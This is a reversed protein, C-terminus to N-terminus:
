ATPVRRPAVRLEPGSPSRNKSGVWIFTPMVPTALRWVVSPVSTLPGRVMDGGAFRQPEALVSYTYEWVDLGRCMRRLGSRTKFREYYSDARGTARIYRDAAPRPLWSLFPLRYHPEMVGFRNGLGLYVVGGPALVRRIEAMIADPDVTHEYVHNYVVLDVSGTPFPLTVGSYELFAVGEPGFRARARELAPLDIDVGTVRAGANHIEHAILGASCGVDVATLGELGDRGLFHGIVSIIKAAKQRRSTEDLMLPQQLSYALQEPRGNETRRNTV